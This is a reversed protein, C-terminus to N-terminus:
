RDPEVWRRVTVSIGIQTVWAGGSYTHADGLSRQATDADSNKPRELISEQGGLSLEYDILM